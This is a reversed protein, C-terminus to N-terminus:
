GRFPYRGIRSWLGADYSWCALAAISVPRPVLSAEVTAATARAVAPSVKNQITIHLRPEHLDPPTLHREFRAALESWLALLDPSHLGIVVGYEILRVGSIAATPRAGRGFERLLTRLESELSPPLHRLLTIHAPVQNREAPYYHRRLGEAWGQDAAGMEATVIIPAARKEIASTMPVPM